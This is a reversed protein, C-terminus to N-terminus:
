AGDGGVPLWISFCSGIGVDSAVTIRGGFSDIIRAAISLGLGTGKGPEKTTFFPDFIRELQEPPIGTGTDRLDIRVVKMPPVHAPFSTFAGGFDDRRRGRVTGAHPLPIDESAPSDVSARIVLNGGHPMADRANIMLNILVQQFQYRDLCPEPVGDEVSLDVTVRKFVGQGTLLAITDELLVRLAIREREGQTPRAYDLMDRVIRDIRAAEDEIRRAHDSREPDHALEDRLIGAYGIIAALPTGIEHATGAALLGLSALRESRATEERSEKLLRNAEELSRVHRGVEERQSRIAAQMANFSDALAAIEAGGPVHVQQEYNGDAIRRTAELLRRVPAVVVRDLLFYGVALLILFDLAFYAIFLTRSAALRSHEAGLTQSLRAAGQRNGDLIVPSYWTMIKHSPSIQVAERNQLLARSLGSDVGRDDRLSYVIRGESDLLSLGAFDRESALREAFVKAASLHSGELLKVYSALMLRGAERKQNLLDKESTKFSILGVLLWTLILLAALAALITFTLSFRFPKMVPAIGRGESGPWSVM